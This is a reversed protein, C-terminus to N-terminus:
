FETNIEGLGIHTCAGVCLYKIVNILFTIETGSNKTVWLKLVKKLM